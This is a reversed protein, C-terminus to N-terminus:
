EPRVGDMVPRTRLGIAVAIGVLVLGILILGRGIAGPPGNLMVSAWSQSLVMVLILMGSYLVTGTIFM